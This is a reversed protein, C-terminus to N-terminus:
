NMTIQTILNKFFNKSRKFIEIILYKNVVSLFFSKEVLFLYKKFNKEIFKKFDNKQVSATM